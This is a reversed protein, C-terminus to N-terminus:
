ADDGSTYDCSEIVMIRDELTDDRNPLRHCLFELMAWRVLLSWRDLLDARRRPNREARSAEM